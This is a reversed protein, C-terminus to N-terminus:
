QIHPPTYDRTVCHILLTYKVFCLRCVIIQVNQDHSLRDSMFGFAKLTASFVKQTFTLKEGGKADAPCPPITDPFIAQPLYQSVVSTDTVQRNLKIKMDVTCSDNLM